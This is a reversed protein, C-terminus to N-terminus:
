YVLVMVKRIMSALKSGWAVDLELSTKRTELRVQEHKMCDQDGEPATCYQFVESGDMSVESCYGDCGASGLSCSDLADSGVAILSTSGAENIYRSYGDSGM